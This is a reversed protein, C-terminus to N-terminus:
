QNEFVQGLNFINPNLILVDLLFDIDDGRFHIAGLFIDTFDEASVVAQIPDFSLNLVFFHEVHKLLPGFHDRRSTQALFLVVISVRWLDQLGSM